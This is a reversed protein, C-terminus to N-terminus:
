LDTAVPFGDSAQQWSFTTDIRRRTLTFYEHAAVCGLDLRGESAGDTLADILANGLAPSWESEFALLGGFIPILPKAPYTGGIVPGACRAM